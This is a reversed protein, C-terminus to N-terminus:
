ICVWLWMFAHVCAWAAGLCSAVRQICGVALVGVKGPQLCNVPYVGCRRYSCAVRSRVGQAQWPPPVGSMVGGVKGAELCGSCTGGAQGPLPLRASDVGCRGLQLCGLSQVGLWGGIIASQTELSGFTEWNRGVTQM